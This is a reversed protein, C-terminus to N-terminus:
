AVSEKKELPPAGWFGVEGVPVLLGAGCDTCVIRGVRGDSWERRWEHRHDKPKM